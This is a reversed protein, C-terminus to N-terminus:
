EVLEYRGSSVTSKDVAELFDQAEPAGFFAAITAEADQVTAWHVTVLWEGAESRATQRSRFGPRRAMYENEVKFNRRLFDADNVGDNLQFRITEVTTMEHVEESM